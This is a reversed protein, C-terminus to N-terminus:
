AARRTPWWRRPAPTPDALAPGDCPLALRGGLQGTPAGLAPHALRTAGGARVMTPVSYALLRYFGAMSNSLSWVVVLRRALVRLPTRLDAPQPGQVPAPLPRTIRAHVWAPLDPPSAPLRGAAPWLGRSSGFVPARACWCFFNGAARYLGTIWYVTLSYLVCEVTSAPLQTLVFSVVYSAPPFFNNSRQKYFM